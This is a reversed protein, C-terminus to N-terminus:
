YAIFVNPVENKAIAIVIAKAQGESVGLRMIANMADRNVTAKHEKDAERKAQEEAAKREQEERYLREREVAEAAIRADHEEQQRKREAERQERESDFKDNMLLAFEHDQEIQKAFAEAEEKAKKADLVKKREITYTDILDTFPKNAEELRERISKAEDEVKSKFEKAKDIRARDLKKLLDKILAAQNKVYVREDKNEMDVYLGTYKQGNAELQQLAEETTIETFLQIEM